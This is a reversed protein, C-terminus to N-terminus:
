GALSRATPVRPREDRSRGRRERRSLESLNVKDSGLLAADVFSGCTLTMRLRDVAVGAVFVKPSPLHYLELLCWVRAIIDEAEAATIEEFVLQHLKEETQM